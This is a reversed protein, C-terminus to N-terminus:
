QRRNLIFVVIYLAFGAAAGIGMYFIFKLPSINGILDQIGPNIASVEANGVATDFLAFFLGLIIGAFVFVISKM